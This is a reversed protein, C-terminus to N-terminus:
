LLAKSIDATTPEYMAQAGHYVRTEVWAERSSQATLVRSLAQGDRRVTLIETLPNPLHEVWATEKDIKELNQIAAM